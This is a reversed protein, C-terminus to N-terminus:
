FSVNVGVTITRGNALTNRDVGPSTASNGNASVEPDPGPYKSFIAVNQASIYFRASNINFRNLSSKEINYGVQVTKLKVFDGKFVNVDIPIGGNSTNDNFVPKPINTVDGPQKWHNLVDVSNNWFRQDHLGANSGYYIYSGFQYTFLVNLEFGKYAFSNDWGGYYKPQANAYLVADDAQNIAISKGDKNVYQTGDANSWNFQGAPLTGGHQYYVKQGAANLFIRRGTAPDVGATRVVWLYGASKGVVTKNITELTSTATLIENLGPALATVENNNSSFNFSTNWTIAANIIPSANVSLEVGKNYMEGVNQFIVGGPVGASPSQPVNLLLNDINNKYVAVDFTLREKFLGFSAGFDAKTSTEWQINPNGIVNFGLTSSGGYLGSGYTSYPAYNGIGSLNGVKGYSGRLKFSSFLKNVGANAWFQEQAIEWGGSVGWFTNSKVGLASYEDKRINGSLFYKRGYNYNLRSFTSYLYNEGFILNVANNTVFGAQVDTYASDSLTRRNLGFGRSTRRQQEGGVLLNINHKAVSFDIQATNTWLWTKDKSFGATAAGGPGIGTGFGDGHYPNFFVDGDILMNDIGYISKLTLWSLPKIQLYVNSQLHNVENNSRNLNLLMTVNNFTYPNAGNVLSGQGGISTGSAYNFSGDANYPSVNPPLAFALRAAGASNFGEGPLSGSSGSIINKEDSYAVKGGVTIIKNVRSDVNVLFNLREFDNGRLIGEQKTYSGSFYYTTGENGGSVNLNHGQSFGQRYVEDYWNTNVPKGDPGTPIIFSGTTAPNNAKLNALAVNKYDVYQQANLIDPLGFPQTFGVYGNYGVKAKGVKGKKTTVFVVGNAARSGYIASAAADKAIDISEIDNTNISSLPNAPASTQGQDGTYTPVGDVVVLPYTSLSISNTGRIRFVPPNNLVGNPVTIQVGAARGGLAAEFSQIPRNVFVNGKVTTLNGTLEKKRQTGYGIVVVESLSRDGRVLSLSVNASNGVSKTTPEFDVASFTLSKVGPPLTIKYNGEANTQTGSKGDPTTISVGEIPLGKDDTIKGSITRDQGTANLIFALAITLSVILKRM